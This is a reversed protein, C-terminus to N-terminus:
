YTFSSGPNVGFSGEPEGDFLISANPYGHWHVTHADFLDPRAAFPVNTITLFFDDGEDLMITPASFRAALRGTSLVQGEGVGTVDNFGFIYQSKGDAMRVFGDSASLHMCKADPWDPDSQDIIADGDRDGPCQVKVAAGAPGAAMLLCTSVLAGVGFMTRRIM